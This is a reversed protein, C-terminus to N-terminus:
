TQNAHNEKAFEGWYEALSKSNGIGSPVTKVWCDGDWRAYSFTRIYGPRAEDWVSIMEGKPPSADTLELIKTLEAIMAKEALEGYSGHTHKWVSEEIEKLRSECYAKVLRSNGMTKDKQTKAILRLDRAKVNRVFMITGACGTKWLNRPLWMLPM